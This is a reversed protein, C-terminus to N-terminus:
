ADNELTKRELVSELYSFGCDECKYISDVEVIEGDLIGKRRAVMISNEYRFYRLNSDNPCIYAKYYGKEM